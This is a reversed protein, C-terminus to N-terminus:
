VFLLFHTNMCGRANIAKGGDGWGGGQSAKAWRRIGLRRHKGGKKPLLNAHSYAVVRLKALFAASDELLYDVQKKYLKVV